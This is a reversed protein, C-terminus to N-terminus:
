DWPLALRTDIGTTDLQERMMSRAYKSAISLVRRPPRLRDWMRRAFQTSCDVDPQVAFAHLGVLRGLMEGYIKPFIRPWIVVRGLELDLRVVRGSKEVVVNSLGHDVDLMGANVIRAAMDILVDEFEHAKQRKGARILQQLYETAPECEGLDQMFLADTFGSINPKVPCWGLPRPVAIGSQSFRALNRYEIASPAIRLLQRLRGAIDPRSWMKVIVTSGPRDAQLWRIVIRNGVRSLVTSTEFHTRLSELIQLMDVHAHHRM